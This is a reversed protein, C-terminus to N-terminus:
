VKTCGINPRLAVPEAHIELNAARAKGFCSVIDEETTGHLNVVSGLCTFKDVYEFAQNKILIPEKDSDNSVVNTKCVNIKLGITSSLDNLKSSKQQMRTRAHSSLAIDDAFGLRGTEDLADVQTLRHNNCVSLCVHLMGPPCRLKCGLDFELKALLLHLQPLFSQLHQYSESSNWITM